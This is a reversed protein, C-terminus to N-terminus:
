REKGMGWAKKMSGKATKCSTCLHATGALNAGHIGSARSATSSQMSFPAFPSPVDPPPGGVVQGAGAATPYGAGAREGVLQEGRRERTVCHREVDYAAVDDHKGALGLCDPAGPGHSRCEHPAHQPDPQAAATAENKEVGTRSALSRSLCLARRRDVVHGRGAHHHAVAGGGRGAYADHHHAGGKPSQPPCGA